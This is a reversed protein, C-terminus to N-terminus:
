CVIIKEDLFLSYIYCHEVKEFTAKELAEKYIEIQKHYKQVLEDKNLTYDTKYDM